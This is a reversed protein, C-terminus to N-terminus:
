SQVNALDGELTQKLNRIAETVKMGKETLSYNVRIPSSSQVERKVIQLNELLKLADSLVKAAINLETCLQNFSYTKKNLTFLIEKFHRRCILSVGDIPKELTKTEASSIETTM